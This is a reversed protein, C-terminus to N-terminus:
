LSVLLNLLVFPLFCASIYLYILPTFPPSCSMSSDGAQGNMDCRFELAGCLAIVATRDMSSDRNPIVANDRHQQTSLLM